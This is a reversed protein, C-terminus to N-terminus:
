LSRSLIMRTPAFSPSGGRRGRRCTSRSGWARPGCRRARVVPVGVRHVLGQRGEVAVVVAAGGLLQPREQRGVHDRLEREEHPRLVLVVHVAGGHHAVDPHVAGGVAQGAGRRAVEAALLAALEVGDRHDALPAAPGPVEREVDGVRRVGAGAGGEEPDVRLGVLLARELEARGVVVEQRDTRRDPRDPELDARRRAGPRRRHRHRADGVRDRVLLAPDHEERAAEIRLVHAAAPHEHEVDPRPLLQEVEAVGLGPGREGGVVGAEREAERDGAVGPM